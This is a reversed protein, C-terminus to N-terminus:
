RGGQIRAHWQQMTCRIMNCVQLIYMCLMRGHFAHLSIHSQSMPLSPQCDAYDPSLSLLAHSPSISTNLTTSPCFACRTNSVTKHTNPTCGIARRQPYAYPMASQHLGVYLCPKFTHIIPRYFHPPPLTSNHPCSCFSRPSVPAIPTFSIVHFTNIQLM